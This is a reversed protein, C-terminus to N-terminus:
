SEERILLSRLKPILNGPKWNKERCTKVQWVGIVSNCLLVEDSELLFDLSYDGVALGLGLAAPALAMIRDRTVGAVGSQSLNPTFLAGDKVMFLNSMTGEIVNGETDLVLGEALAPDDWEMRAMINELRNMHKIGALRPQRSLRLNCVRVGVGEDIYESPYTPMQTSSVVRTSPMSLIPAYGRTGQGRTIVIKAVCDPEAAGITALEQDLVEAPPCSLKLAQCDAYLKAYQRQWCFPKGAQILLTRFVGDGYMFGRDTVPVHESRVGNVLIM